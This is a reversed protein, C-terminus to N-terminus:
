RWDGTRVFQLYAKRYEEETMGRAAEQLADLNRVSKCVVEWACEVAEDMLGIFYHVDEIDEPIERDFLYEM